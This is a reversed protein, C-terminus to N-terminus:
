HCVSKAAVRLPGLMLELDHDLRAVALAEILRNAALRHEDVRILHNATVVDVVLQQQGVARGLPALLAAREAGILHGVHGIHAVVGDAEVVRVTVYRALEDGDVHEGKVLLADLRVHVLLRGGVVTDREGVLEHAVYREVDDLYERALRERAEFM